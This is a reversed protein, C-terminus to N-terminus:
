TVVCLENRRLSAKRHYHRNMMHSQTPSSRICVRTCRRCLTQGTTMTPSWLCKTTAQGDYMHENTPWLATTHRNHLSRRFRVAPARYDHLRGLPPRKATTRHHAAPQQWSIAQHDYPPWLPLLATTTYSQRKDASRSDWSTPGAATRQDYLLRRQRSHDHSPPRLATSQSRVVTTRRDDPPRGATTRCDDPPRRHRRCVATSSRDNVLQVPARRIV